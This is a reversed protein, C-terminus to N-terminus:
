ALLGSVIASPMEPPNLLPPRVGTGGGGKFGRRACTGWCNQGLGEVETYVYSYSWGPLGLNVNYLQVVELM